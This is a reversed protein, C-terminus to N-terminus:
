PARTMWHLRCRARAEPRLRLKLLVCSPDGDAPNQRAKPPPNARRGAGDGLGSTCLVPEEITRASTSSHNQKGKAYTATTPMLDGSQGPRALGLDSHSSNVDRSVLARAFEPGIKRYIRGVGGVGGEMLVVASIGHCSQCVSSAPLVQAAWGAYEWPGASLCPPNTARPREAHQCGRWSSRRFQCTLQCTKQHASHGLTVLRCPGDCRWYGGKNTMRHGKQTHTCTGPSVNKKSTRPPAWLPRAPGKWDIRVKNPPM